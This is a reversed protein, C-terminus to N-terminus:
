QPPFLTAPVEVEEPARTRYTKDVYALLEFFADEHLMKEAAEASGWRDSVHNVFFHGSNCEQHFQNEQVKTVECSEHAGKCQPAVCDLQGDKELCNCFREKTEKHVFCCQGDPVLLVFHPLLGNAMIITFPTTLVLTDRLPMGIGPLLVALPYRMSATEAASYDPPLNVAFWRRQGLVESYFSSYVLQGADNSPRIIAGPLRHMANTFFALVRMVIQCGTGIHGGDGIAIDKASANPNGVRVLLNWGVKAPSWDLSDMNMLLDECKQDPVLSTPQGVFDDYATVPVRAALANAVHSVATLAHIPDRIGGDFWWWHRRLESLPLTMMATRADSQIMREYNPNYSFRGDGEGLDKFGSRSEPVGDIGYDDFPEGEDYEHNGETGLPNALLDHDDRNPDGSAGTATCGGKGDERDNACGDAGVDRWRESGNIPIPEAYDRRGNGNYDVFLFPVIPRHYEQTPDYWSALQRYDPNDKGCKSPDGDKCGVAPDGDCFTVFDYQGDPNFEANFNHPKGIRLPNACKESDPKRVWEESVGPPLLPNDPNYLIPNGFAFSLAEISDFYFDRKWQGASDDYVFQNFSWPKEFDTTPIPGCFTGAAPDNVHELDSLIKDMPCFGGLVHDRFFHGLYRYDIYGGLSGIADFRDPHHAGVIMAHGGMSAGTIARFAFRHKIKAEPVDPAADPAVEEAADGATEIADAPAAADADGGGSSGCGSWVLASAAVMAASAGCRLRRM